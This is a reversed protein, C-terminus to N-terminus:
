VEVDPEIRVRRGEELPQGPTVIRTIPKGEEEALARTAKMDIDLRLTFLRKTEAPRTVNVLQLTRVEINAGYDGEEYTSRAENMLQQHNLQFVAVTLMAAQELKATDASELEITITQTARIRTFIAIVGYLVQVTKFMSTDRNPRLALSFNQSDIEDWLVEDDRLTAYGGSQRELRVRRAGPYPPQTLRYPGEPRASNFVLNDARDDPRPESATSDVSYPDIELVDTAIKLTVKPKTGGFLGKLSEVLLDRLATEFSAAM